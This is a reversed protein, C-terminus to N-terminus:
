CHFRMLSSLLQMVHEDAAMAEWSLNVILRIGVPSALISSPIAIFCPIEEFFPLEQLVVEVRFAWARHGKEGSSQFKPAVHM